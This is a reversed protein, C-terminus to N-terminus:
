DGELKEKKAIKLLEEGSMHQLTPLDLEDKKALDFKNQSELDLAQAEAELQEDTPVEGPQLTVVPAGGGGGGGVGMMRVKNRRRRSKKSSMRSVREQQVSFFPFVSHVQPTAHLISKWEM